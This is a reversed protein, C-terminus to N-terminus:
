DRKSRNYRLMVSAEVYDQLASDQQSHFASSLLSFVREAAASSPQILLLRTVTASWFPLTQRHAAWWSVKDDESTVTVGEAAALYQPLEWALNAITTHNNAFPFYRLEELTAATPRLAQVQVPCCLRVAKFARVTDHFEVSFEQQYFNLGPKYWLVISYLLMAMQSKALFLRWTRTTASQLLTHLQRSANKACFILPGDGELYYTANVFHVGTDIVAALELRLKQLSEPDDSVELLHSRNAPSIEEHQRLFPEIDAFLDLAQKLVEWKSWGPIATTVSQNGLRREGHWSQMIAIPSCSYGFGHLPIWFKFNSTLDWM